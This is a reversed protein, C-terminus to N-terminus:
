RSFMIKESKFIKALIFMLIGVIVVNTVLGILINFSNYSFSFIGNMSQVSNYLPIMYWTFSEKAGDGFMSTIGILMVVIMLPMVATAAEKVTRAFASIISILSIIVLVTSLIVLLLLIYDTVSYFSVDMGETGQGMLKPLSLMTGLFSSLGALLAIVSLSLIKGIALESRKIPTVLLTAITGREKEGAISEPAIAMCGSFLFIMMLMPLMMSFIEGAADKDSALDYNGQVKNIDFKNALISEYENLIGYLINYAGSSGPSLSNYYIEIYPATQAQNLSNYNQVLVDFNEPFIIIADSEENQVKDKLREVDSDSIETVDFLSPDLMTGISDPMNLAAIKYVYKEDTTYSSSLASGMFSYMTYILIGPLLLTTVIMRKDGFFRAFEKRMITFINNKM